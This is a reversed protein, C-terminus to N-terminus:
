HLRQGPERECAIAREIAHLRVFENKMDRM